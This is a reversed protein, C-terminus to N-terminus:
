TQVELIHHQNIYQDVYVLVNHSRDILLFIVLSPHRFRLISILVARDQQTLTNVPDLIIYKLSLKRQLIDIVSILFSVHIQAVYLVFPLSVSPSFAKSIREECDIFLTYRSTFCLFSFICRRQEELSGQISIIRAKTITTRM